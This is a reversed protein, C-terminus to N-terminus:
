SIRAFFIESKRHSIQPKFSVIAFKGDNAKILVKQHFERNSCAGLAYPKHTPTPHEILKLVAWTEYNVYFGITNHITYDIVSLTDCTMYRLIVYWILINPFGFLCISQRYFKFGSLTMLMRFLKRTSVSISFFSAFILSHCFYLGFSSSSSSSSSSSFLSFPLDIQHIFSSHLFLLM